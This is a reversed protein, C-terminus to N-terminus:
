SQGEVGAGSDTLNSRDKMQSVLKAVTGEDLKWFSIVLSMALTVLAPILSFLMNIGRSALQTQAENATYGVIDLVRGIVVSALSMGLKQSFVFVSFNVARVDRGTQWRGFEVTDSVMAFSTVLPGTMAVCGLCGFVFVLPINDSSFYLGLFAAAMIIGGWFFAFKKGKKKVVPPVILMGAISSPLMAAMFGSMLESNNINYKFFYVMAGSFMYYGLNRLLFACVLVILPKNSALTRLTDKLGTSEQKKVPLVVREHVFRVCVLTSLLAMLSFASVTILYARSDGYKDGLKSLMLPALVSVLVVPVTSVIFRVSNLSTRENEDQTVTSSMANYPICYITHAVTWLSFSALAYVTKAASSWGPSLFMLIFLVMAPFSGALVWKKYKGRRDSMYGIILDNVADFIRSVMCVVGAATATIGLSDTYFNVLYVGIIQLYTNAAVDGMGYALKEGLGLKSSIAAKVESVNGGESPVAM